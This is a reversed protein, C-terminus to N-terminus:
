TSGASPRTPGSAVRDFLEIYLKANHDMYYERIDTLNNRRMREALEPNEYVRRIAEALQRPDGPRVLIGNRDPRILDCQGGNNTAVIPLGCDMAEQVVIGLGEHLSPLVFCDSARLVAYIERRDRFGHMRVRDEVATERATNRLRTAEPGDGILDLVINDPLLAMARILHEFGKRRVLRGVATLHFRDSNSEVLRIDEEPPSDTVLPRFGYNIVLIPREIGYLSEARQRTDNSIAVVRDAAEIIRRNLWRLFGIRHPSWRKTPDYIDGGIITLVHPRRLLRVVISAMPGTPISFHTNVVDFRRYSELNVAVHLLGAVNYWLMSLITATARNRRGPAALRVIEVGNITERAALGRARSTVVRVRHGLEVWTEAYQSAGIGGGGGIPPYEYTLIM